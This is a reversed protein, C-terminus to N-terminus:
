MLEYKCIDLQKAIDPRLSKYMYLSEHNFKCVKCADLEYHKAQIIVYM